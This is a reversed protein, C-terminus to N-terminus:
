VKEGGVPWFGAHNSAGESLNTYYGSLNTYYGSISTTCGLSWVKM